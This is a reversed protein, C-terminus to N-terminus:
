LPDNSLFLSLVTNVVVAGMGTIITRHSKSLHRRNLPNIIDFRNLASLLTFAVSTCFVNIAEVFRITFFYINENCSHYHYTIISAEFVYM